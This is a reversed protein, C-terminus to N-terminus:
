KDFLNDFAARSESQKGDTPSKAAGRSLTFFDCFNVMEKDRVPESITERCDWHNGPAFFDCNKCVKVEKGCGPCITTRFVRDFRLDAGCSFCSAM